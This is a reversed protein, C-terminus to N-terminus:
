IGKRLKWKKTKFCEHPWEGICEIAGCEELSYCHSQAVGKSIKLGDAINQLNAYPHSEIYELVDQNSSHINM